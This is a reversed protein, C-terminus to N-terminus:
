VFNWRSVTPQRIHGAFRSSRAQGSPSARGPRRSSSNAELTPKKDFTEPSSVRPHTLMEVYAGLCVHKCQFGLSPLRDPLGRQRYGPNGFEYAKLHARVHDADA